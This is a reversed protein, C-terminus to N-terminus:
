RVGTALVKCSSCSRKRDSVGLRPPCADTGRRSAARSLLDRAMAADGLAALELVPLRTAAGAEARALPSRTLTGAIAIVPLGAERLWRVGAAAGMADGASFVIGDVLGSFEAAGLLSATEQQFLGDAVEIVIVDLPDRLLEALVRQVVDLLQGRDLGHTSAYGADVFDLVPWAGADGMLGPDLGAGTGTVKAAGVSLGARALGKILHAASTTKGANMSTGVSALVPPRDLPTMRAPLAHAALNLPRGSADVVRAIPELRTPAAAADHRSIVEAAVGGGAVLHCPGDDRPLQAEFQDPAYRAAYSVLIEDGVFLAARRGGPQELHGHKGIATVRALVLDGARPPASPGDLLGAMAALPVRRTTYGRKARALRATPDPLFPHQPIM